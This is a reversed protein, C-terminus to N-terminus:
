ESNGCDAYKLKISPYNWDYCKNPVLNFDGKDGGKCGARAYAGLITFIEPLPSPLGATRDTHPASRSSDCIPAQSDEDDFMVPSATAATVMLTAVLHTLKVM